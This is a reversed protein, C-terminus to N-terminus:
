WYVHGFVNKAPCHVPKLAGGKKSCLRCQIEAPNLNVMCPNCYWKETATPITEVGFCAQHVALNCNDCFIINNNDEIEPSGCVACPADDDIEM